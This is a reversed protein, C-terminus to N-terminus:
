LLILHIFLSVQAIRVIEIAIQAVAKLGPVNFAGDGISAVVKFVVSARALGFGSAPSSVLPPLTTKRRASFPTGFAMRFIFLKRSKPSKSTLKKFRTLANPQDSPSTSLASDEPISLAQAQVTSALPMTSLSGVNTSVGSSHSASPLDVPLIKKSHSKRFIHSLRNTWPSRLPSLLFPM